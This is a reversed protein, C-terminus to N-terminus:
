VRKATADYHEFSVQPKVDLAACHHGFRAGATFDTLSM